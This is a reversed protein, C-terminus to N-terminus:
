AAQVERSIADFETGGILWVEGSGHKFGPHGASAVVHPFNLSGDTDPVVDFTAEEETLNLAMCVQRRFGWAAMKDKFSYLGPFILRNGKDDNFVPYRVAENTM